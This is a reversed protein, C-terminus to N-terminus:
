RAKAPISPRRRVQEGLVRDPTITSAAVLGGDLLRGRRDKPKAQQL